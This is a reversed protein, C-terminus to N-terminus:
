TQTSNPESKIPVQLFDFKSLWELLNTNKFNICAPMNELDYLVSGTFLAGIKCEGEINFSNISRFTHQSLENLDIVFLTWKDLVPLVM